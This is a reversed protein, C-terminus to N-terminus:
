TSGGQEERTAALGWPVSYYCEDDPGSPVRELLLLNGFRPHGRRNNSSRQWHPRLQRLQEYTPASRSLLDM